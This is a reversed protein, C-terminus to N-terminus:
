SLRIEGEICLPKESLEMELKMSLKVTAAQDIDGRALAQRIVTEIHQNSSIGVKKLFRRIDNSFIEDDM